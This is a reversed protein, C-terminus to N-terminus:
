WAWHIFLSHSCDQTHTETTTDGAHSAECESRCIGCVDSCFPCINRVFSRVCWPPIPVSVSSSFNLNVCERSCAMSTKSSACGMRASRRSLSLYRSALTCKTAGVQSPCDVLVGAWWTSFRIPAGRGSMVARCRLRTETGFSKASRASLFNEQQAKCVCCTFGRAAASCAYLISTISVLLMERTSHANELIRLSM